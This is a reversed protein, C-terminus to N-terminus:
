LFECPHRVHTSLYIETSVLRWLTCWYEVMLPSTTEVKCALVVVIEVNGETAAETGGEFSVTKDRCSILKLFGPFRLASPSFHSPSPEGQSMVM